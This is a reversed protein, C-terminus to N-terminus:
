KLAQLSSKPMGPAHLILQINLPPLDTPFPSPYESISLEKEDGKQGLCNGM